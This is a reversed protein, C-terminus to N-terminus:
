SKSPNYLDLIFWFFGSNNDKGSSTACMVKLLTIAKRLISTKVDDGKWTVGKLRMLIQAISIRDGNLSIADKKSLQLLHM